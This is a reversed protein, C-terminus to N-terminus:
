TVDWCCYARARPANNVATVCNELAQAAQQLARIIGASLAERLARLRHLCAGPRPRM